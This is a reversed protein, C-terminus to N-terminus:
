KNLKDNYSYIAYEKTVHDDRFFESEAWRGAISSKSQGYTPSKFQGDPSPVLFVDKSTALLRAVM